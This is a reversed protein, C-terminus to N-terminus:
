GLEQKEKLYSDGQSTKEPWIRLKLLGIGARYEQISEDMNVAYCKGPTVSITECQVYSSIRQIKYRTWHRLV